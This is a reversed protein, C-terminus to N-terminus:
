VSAAIIEIPGPHQHKKPRGRKSKVVEVNEDILNFTHIEAIEEDDNVSTKM